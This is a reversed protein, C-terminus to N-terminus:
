SSCRITSRLIAVGGGAGASDPWPGRLPGFMNRGMITAGIDVFGEALYEDDVGTSGGEQGMLGHGPQTEFIWEHLRTGDVGLADDLGQDPGAVFGDLSMAMSHVRLKRSM